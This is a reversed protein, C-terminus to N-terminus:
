LGIKKRLRGFFKRINQAAITTVSDLPPKFQVLDDEVYSGFKLLEAKQVFQEVVVIPLQLTQAVDKIRAVKSFCAAIKMLDRRNKDTTFQPWIELKFCSKKNVRQIALDQEAFSHWLWTRLDVATIDKTLELVSQNSAYKYTLQTSIPLRNMHKAQWIRETRCDVLGVLGAQNYLHIYGHRPTLIQSFIDTSRDAIIPQVAPLAITLDKFFHVQLWSIFPQQNTLPYYMLDHDIEGARKENHILRLYQVNKADIIKQIIVADFFLDNVLLIDIKREALSVWQVHIDQPVASLIHQKTKDLASSNLGFIAINLIRNM